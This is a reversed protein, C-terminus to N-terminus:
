PGAANKLLAHRHWRVVGLGSPDAPPTRGKLYAPSAVAIIHVPALVRSVLGPALDIGGGIAADFGEAISISKGTRSSGTPASNPYRALFEPLLPLIYEVGFMLGM